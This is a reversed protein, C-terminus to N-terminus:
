GKPGPSMWAGQEDSREIADLICQVRYGAEFSPEYPEGAGIASLFAAHEHVFTHEWGLVHGPPWWHELYPDSEDTVLLTEYGRQDRGRVELENLRELNFRLAGESGHIELRLENKSGTAFRSGELSGMAGNEFQLQAAFADDVTVPRTDGGSPDPREEVFTELHGSVSDVKGVLFHVLDVLHSGLDGLVGSGARTEDLRWSWPEDPDVLWDQLYRGRVHRIDGLVGENILNRALQIAPLYRYNFATASAASSAAAARAMKEAAGITNALPKECMVHVDNELAAVSPEAHLHNPALNLLVNVDDIAETWDTSTRAFGFQEAAEALAEEDRGVLVSREVQPVDPFFLPLRTLANVHARGMFRYGIMGIRLPEM